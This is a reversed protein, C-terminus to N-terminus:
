LHNIELKMKQDNSAVTIYLWGDEEVTKADGGTVINSSGEGVFVAVTIDALGDPNELEVSYDQGERKIEWRTKSYRSLFDAFQSMPAVRVRGASQEALAKDEFARIAELCFRRDSPHTYIMRIVREKGAFDILDNMWQSVEEEPVHGRDMEELSAHQRYPTIPFAWMSDNAYKNDLRPHTPSSGTDGTWYYAKVGLEELKSNFWFPHNGGPASYEIVKRGTVSELANFNWDVLENLKEQPLYQMNYAFFNHAWGGHAGIEGYDKLAELVPQGRYLSEAYFGMSDGLKYTDPGATIHISFPLESNFLGQMMMVTLARFYAGSCIHLNFVMGGEGAPSNVLRPMKAYKILFTRLVSRPVLDDSRIKYKALPMNAYVATGGSDYRRETIVPVEGSESRDFALVSAGTNVARFHEYKLKGYTYTCVAHDKDLRGPTIGWERGKDANPFYWYGPYTALKGNALPLCYRVGILDALLPAPQPEGGTTITAPDLVFLASGGQDKVYSKIIEAIEPRMAANINEPIVLTEYRSKIGEAGFIELEAPSIVKYLFGEENLLQEYVALILKQKESQAEGALIGIRVVKTPEAWSFHLFLTGALLISSIAVAVLSYTLKKQRM